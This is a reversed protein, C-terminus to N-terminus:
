RLLLWIKEILAKAATTDEKSTCGLLRAIHAYREKSAPLNYEMVSPLFIANAIGHPVDYLGGITEAICHVAGVDSNGFAMGALTSALMMSERQQPQAIDNYATLLSDFVLTIAQVALTDTIVTRPIVTYAEVAHTLADMGTSALLPQPLTILVDPDVLAVDPFMDPGKISMKFRRKADTIVSVWTVESGTGCTTPIALVPLPPNRYKHKGEYLEISGPNTALLAIAKAADLSSGGGLGIVLDPQLSRATEGGANITTSKPNPEVTDFVDLHFSNELQSLILKAIGAAIIGEDTVLFLNSAKMDNIITILQSLVGSGYVIKTPMHFQMYTVVKVPILIKFFTEGQQLFDKTDDLFPEFDKL